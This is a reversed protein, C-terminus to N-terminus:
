TPTTVSRCAPYPARSPTEWSRQGPTPCSSGLRGRAAERATVEALTVSLADRTTAMRWPQVGAERVAQPPQQGPDIAALLGATAAMIEAPTRYNVTLRTLRWQDGALPEIASEWSTTGAPGATQAIDGVVTMSKTPCRRALLRWAMQSLEQAEDVIVHGFATTPPANPWARAAQSRM